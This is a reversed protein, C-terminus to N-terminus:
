HGRVNYVVQVNIKFKKKIKKKKTNWDICKDEKEVDPGTQCIENSIRIPSGGKPHWYHPKDQERGTWKYTPVSRQVLSEPKNNSKGLNAVSQWCLV